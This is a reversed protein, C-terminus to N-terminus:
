AQRQIRYVRCTRCVGYAELVRCVGFALRCASPRWQGQFQVREGKCGAKCHGSACRGAASCCLTCGGKDHCCKLAQGAALRCEQDQDFEAATMSWLIFGGFRVQTVIWWVFELFFAIYQFCTYSRMHRSLWMEVLHSQIAWVEFGNTTHRPWMCLRWHGSTALFMDVTSLDFHWTALYPARGVLAWWRWFKLGILRIPSPPATQIQYPWDFDVLDEVCDHDPSSNTCKWNWNWLM